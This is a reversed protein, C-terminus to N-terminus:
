SDHGLTPAQATNDLFRDDQKFEEIRQRLADTSMAGVVEINAAIGVSLTDFIYVSFPGTHRGKRMHRWSDDKMANAIVRFTKKFLQGEKRKNFSRDEELVARVYDTIFPEVDHEFERYTNKM